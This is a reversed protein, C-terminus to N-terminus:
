KVEEVEGVAKLPERLKDADGVVVITAHDVGFYKQAVRQVDAVTVADIRSRFSSLYDPPLGYLDRNLLSASVGAQTVLGLVFTGELFSKAERLETETVPAARMQETLRLMEKLAPATVDTRTQASATFDGALAKRDLTSSVDYAYGLRERVSSFLRSSFGGGLIINAVALPYYDPDSRKIALDGLVINSQVSGPRNVLYIRQATITPIVPYPAAADAGASGTWSGLAKTLQAFAVAPKIDGVVVLVAGRPTYHAQYFARLKEPTLAQVSAPTASSVGYPHAGYVVRNFEQSALFTPQQRQLVLEQLTLQKYTALEDAPFAPHLLVDAMIETIRAFNETLASAGVTASDKGATVTLTGGLGDVAEQLQLSNFKDTGETMVSAVATALGPANPPDLVSGAQLGLRLTVVPVTHSEVVIIKLGNPLTRTQEKSLVFPHAPLDAPPATVSSQAQVSLPTLTMALGFAALLSINKYNQM